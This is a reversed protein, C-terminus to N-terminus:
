PREIEVALQRHVGITAQLREAMGDARRAQPHQELCPQLQAALGALALDVVALLQREGVVQAARGALAYREDGDESGFGAVLPAGADPRWKGRGNRVGFRSSGRRTQGNAAASEA